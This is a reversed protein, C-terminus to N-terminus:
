SVDTIQSLSRSLQKVAVRVDSEDEKGPCVLKEHKSNKQINDFSKAEYFRETKSFHVKDHKKIEKM